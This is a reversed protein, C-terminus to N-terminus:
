NRKLDAIQLLLLRYSLYDRRWSASSKCYLHIFKERAHQIRQAVIMEGSKGWRAAELGPEVVM